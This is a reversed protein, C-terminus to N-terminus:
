VTYIVELTICITGNNDVKHYMNGTEIRRKGTVMLNWELEIDINEM